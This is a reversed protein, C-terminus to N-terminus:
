RVRSRATMPLSVPPTVAPLARDSARTFRAPVGPPASFVPVRMLVAQPVFSPARARVCVMNLREDVASPARFTAFHMAAQEAPGSPARSISSLKM